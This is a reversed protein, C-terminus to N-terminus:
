LDDLEKLLEESDEDDNKKSEEEVLKHIRLLSEQVMKETEKDIRLAYDLLKKRLEERQKNTKSNIIQLLIGKLEDNLHQSYKYLDIKQSVSFYESAKLAKKLEQNIDM